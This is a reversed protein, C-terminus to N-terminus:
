GNILNYSFKLELFNLEETASALICTGLLWSHSTAVENSLYTYTVNRDNCFIKNPLLSLSERESQIHTM